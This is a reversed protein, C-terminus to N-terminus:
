NLENPLEIGSPDIGLSKALRIGQELDERLMRIDTERMLAGIFERAKPRWLAHQAFIPLLRNAADVLRTKVKKGAGELLVREYAMGAGHHIGDDIALRNCLDELVTGRSSRAIMRFRPIILREYFVQMLFVKEELTDAELVQQALQDLYPDREAMGGAEHILKLWGETHRSEDQVMTTYYLKAEHDPAIAFLQTAMEVALEDAQLQQTVVSRWLDRRRALKQPSGKYEPIPPVEGWPLDRVQWEARKALEYYRYVGQLDRPDAFAAQDVQEELEM